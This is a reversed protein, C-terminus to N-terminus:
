NIEFTLSGEILERTGGVDVFQDSGDPNVPEITLSWTGNASGYTGSSDKLLYAKCAFSYYPPNDNAYYATSYGNGYLIIGDSNYDLRTRVGQLDAPLILFIKDAATGSNNRFDKLMFNLYVTKGIIKYTIMSKDVNTDLVLSNTTSPSKFSISNSTTIQHKIWGSATTVGTVIDGNIVVKGRSVNNTADYALVVDGDIGVGGGDEEGAIYINGNKKILGSSGAANLNGVVTWTLPSGSARLVNNNDSQLWLDGEKPTPISPTVTSPLVFWYSGDAGPDGQFGQIGQQGPVGQIGQIGTAGTPGGGISLIQDFNYNIKDVFTAQDDASLLQLLNLLPM